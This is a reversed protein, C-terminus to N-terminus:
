GAPWVLNVALVVAFVMAAFAAIRLPRALAQMRPSRMMAFYLGAIIAIEVVYQLWNM